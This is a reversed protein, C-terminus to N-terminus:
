KKGHKSRAAVVIWRWISTGWGGTRKRAEPPQEIIIMSRSPPPLRGPYKKANQSGNDQEPPTKEAPSLEGVLEASVSKDGPKLALKEPDRHGVVVVKHLRRRKVVGYKIGPKLSKDGKLADRKARKNIEGNVRQSIIGLKKGQTETLSHISTTTLLQGFTYTIKEIDIEASSSLESLHKLIKDTKNEPVGVPDAHNEGSTGHFRQSIRSFLGM